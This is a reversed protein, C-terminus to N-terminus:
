LKIETYRTLDCFEKIKLKKLGREMVTWIFQDDDFFFVLLHHM